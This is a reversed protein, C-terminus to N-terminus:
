PTTGKALSQLAAAVSDWAETCFFVDPGAKDRQRTYAWLLFEVPTKLAAVEPVALAAAILDPTPDDDGPKIWNCERGGNKCDCEACRLPDPAPAPRRITKFIASPKSGIAWSDVPYWSAGDDSVTEDGVQIVDDRTLFVFRPADRGETDNTM